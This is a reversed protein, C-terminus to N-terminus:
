FLNTVTILACGAASMDHPNTATFSRAHFGVGSRLDTGTGLPEFMPASADGFIIPNRATQQSRGVALIECTKNDASENVVKPTYYVEYKGFLRGVRYIGPRATVGSPEFLERPMALFQAMINKGVYLHTIGHDATDEAMKQDGVGLVASFNQWIQAQTKQQIQTSYQFDFTLPNQFKGIMKVKRLADYHRELAYQARITLMAEAGADIGVENAFQSRSEPTVQYIVRFPNAFLQYMAAQVSMRPTVSADAEYDVYTECTVVTGAPFATNPTVSVEGSAPKVTGTLTYDTSGLRVTGSVPVTALVNSGNTVETVARKGNVYVITRGRLLNLVAGTGDTRRTFTFKYNATDNPAALEQVRAGAVYGGGAAVGDMMDSVKYDGWDSGALHNVIILRAENSGKDAPLYGAFPCAEALAGMVAVIPANPNISIQDHHSNNVSDFISRGQHVASLLVDGSPSVGHEAAYAKVGDFIAKVIMEGQKDTARGLLEDLVRPTGGSANKISGMATDAAAASDLVMGATSGAGVIGSVFHELQIEDEKTYKEQTNTGSM